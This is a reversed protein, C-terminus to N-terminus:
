PNSVTVQLATTGLNGASDRAVASLTHCGNSATTTDWMMSFPSSTLESGMNTDDLKIQVGVVADDDTADAVVTLAGSVTGGCSEADTVTVIVEDSAALSGDSVTFRLTYSGSMPFTATTNLLSPNGFIVTGPGSVESWTRTLTSGSPLGDDTAAGAMTAVTPFTIIQDPGADVVPALNTPPTATVIIEIVDDTPILSGDNATLRLTYTGAANFTAGDDLSYIQVTWTTATVDGMIWAAIQGTAADYWLLDTKGDGNLDIAEIVNWDPSTILLTWGTVTTGNMIWAATQGTSANHVILEPNGDGNLDGTKIVEWAPDARMSASLANSSLDPFIPTGTQANATLPFALFILATISVSV